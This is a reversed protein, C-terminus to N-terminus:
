GVNHEDNVMVGKTKLAEITALMIAEDRADKKAQAEKDRKDKRWQWYFGGAMGLVVGVIGIIYSWSALDLSSIWVLFGGGGVQSATVYKNDM